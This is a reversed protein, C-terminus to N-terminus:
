GWPVAALDETIEAALEELWEVQCKQRVQDTRAIKKKLILVQALLQQWDKKKRSKRGM